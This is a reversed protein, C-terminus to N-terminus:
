RVAVSIRRDDVVSLAGILLAHTMADGIAGRWWMV